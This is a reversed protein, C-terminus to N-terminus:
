FFNILEHKKNNKSVTLTLKLNGLLVTQVAEKFHIHCFSLKGDLNEIIFDNFQM